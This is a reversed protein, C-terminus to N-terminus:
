LEVGGFRFLQDAGRFTFKMLRRMLLLVEDGFLHGHRDNVSKFHDIDM